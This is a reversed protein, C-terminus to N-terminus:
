HQASCQSGALAIDVAYVGTERAADSDAFHVVATDRMTNTIAINLDTLTSRAFACREADAVALREKRRERISLHNTLWVGTLSMAGGILVAM